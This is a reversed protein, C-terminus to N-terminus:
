YKVVESHNGPKSAIAKVAFFVGEEVKMKFIVKERGEPIQSLAHECATSFAAKFNRVAEFGVENLKHTDFM